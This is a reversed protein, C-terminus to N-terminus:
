DDDGSADIGALHGEGLSLGELFGSARLLERLNGEASPRRTPAHRVQPPGGSAIRNLVANASRIQAALTALVSERWLQGVRGTPSLFDAASVRYLWGPSAALCSATREGSEVLTNAGFLDGVGLTALHEARDGHVHRLVDVSGEAVVYATDGSDGELFLIEGEEVAQPRFYDALASFVEPEASRLIPSRRLLPELPPCPLAPGGPRLRRWMRVLVSPERRTPADRGGQALQAIRQDTARIRRVLSVLAQQLLADYIPSGERRLRTLGKVPLTLVEAPGRAVVTASRTEGRFFASAEGTLEGKRVEGVEVGEAMAVLDGLLVVGLEMALGGQTWLSQGDRLEVRSWLRASRQLEQAPVGRFFPVRLLDDAVQSM